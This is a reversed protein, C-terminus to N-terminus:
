IYLLTYGREHPFMDKAYTYEPLPYATSGYTWADPTLSLRHRPTYIDDRRPCASRQKDKELPLAFAQVIPYARLSGIEWTKKTEM